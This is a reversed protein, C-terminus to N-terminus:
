ILDMDYRNVKNIKKLNSIFLMPKNNLTLLNDFSKSSL